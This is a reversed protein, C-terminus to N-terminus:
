SLRVTRHAIRRVFRIEPMLRWPNSQHKFAAVASFWALNVGPLEEPEEVLGSRVGKALNLTIRGLVKALSQQM